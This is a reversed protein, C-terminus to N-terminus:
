RDHLEDRTWSVKGGIGRDPANKLRWILRSAATERVSDEVLTREIAEKVVTTMSQNRIAACVRLRRILQEPLHITLNRGTDVDELTDRIRTICNVALRM